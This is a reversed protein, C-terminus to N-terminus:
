ITCAHARHLLLSNKGPSLVIVNGAFSRLKTGRRGEESSLYKRFFGFPTQKVDPCKGTSIHRTHPTLNPASPSNSVSSNSSCCTCDVRPPFNHGRYPEIFELWNSASICVGHRRMTIDLKYSWIKSRTGVLSTFDPERSWIEKNISKIFTDSNSWPFINGIKHRIVVSKDFWVNLERSGAVIVIKNESVAVSFM